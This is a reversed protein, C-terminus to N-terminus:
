NLLTKQWKSSFLLRCVYAIAQLSKRNYFFLRGFPFVNRLREIINRYIGIMMVKNLTLQVSQCSVQCHGCTLSFHSWIFNFQFETEINRQKTLITQYIEARVQCPVPQTAQLEKNLVAFVCNSASILFSHLRAETWPLPYIDNEYPRRSSYALKTALQIHALHTKAAEWVSYVSQVGDTLRKM